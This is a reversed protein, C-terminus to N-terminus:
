QQDGAAEGGPIEGLLNNLRLQQQAIIGNQAVIYARLEDTERQRASQEAALAKRVTDLDAYAKALRGSLDAVKAEAEDLHERIPDARLRQIEQNAWTLSLETIRCHSSLNELLAQQQRGWESLWRGLEGFAIDPHQGSQIALVYAELNLSLHAELDRLYGIAVQRREEEPDSRSFLPM